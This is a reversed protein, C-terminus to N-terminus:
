YTQRGVNKLEQEAASKAAAKGEDSSSRVDGFAKQQARYANMQNDLRAAMPAPAAARAAGLAIVNDEIIQRARAGQGKAYAQAAELERTSALASTAMAFVAGDRSEEVARADNTGRVSLGALSADAGGGGVKSWVVHGEFARAEGDPVDGELELVVRRADGAFISGLDLQLDNGEIKAEAGLARVFRVGQPLRLTARAGGVVTTATEELERQLFSTLAPGDKVFAFNGRGTEAVGGMYGEDFDLGIGMSSITIGHGATERAVNIAHERSGDLGDSALVVRKVRGAPVEALQAAGAILAPPINTGGGAELHRVREILSARVDGVRALPQVIEHSTEYRVVAIQDDDRMQQVLRVVANRAQEIKEGAMSGSTDLVVAMSLPARNPAVDAKDGALELEAYFRRSGGALLKGHSLAFTGHAGAGSFQISTASATSVHAAATPSAILPQPARLLVLGGAALVITTISLGRRIRSSRLWSRISM